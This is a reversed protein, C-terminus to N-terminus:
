DVDRVIRYQTLKTQSNFSYHFLINLALAKYVLIACTYVDVCIHTYLRCISMIPMSIGLM